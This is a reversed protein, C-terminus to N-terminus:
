GNTTSRSSGTSGTPRGGCTIYCGGCSSGTIGTGGCTVVAM